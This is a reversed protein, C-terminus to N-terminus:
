STVRQMAVHPSDECVVLEVAYCCGRAPIAVSWDESSPTSSGMHRLLVFSVTVCAARQGRPIWQDTDMHMNRTIDLANPRPVSGCSCCKHLLQVLFLTSASSLQKTNFGQASQYGTSTTSFLLSTPLNLIMRKIYEGAIM